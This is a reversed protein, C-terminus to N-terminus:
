SLQEIRVRAAEDPHRELWGRAFPCRPVVVLAHEVAFDIAFQVLQGGVGHGELADPVETHMLVLRDDRRAYDLRAVAGDITAEFRHLDANDVVTHEAV